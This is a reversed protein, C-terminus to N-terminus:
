GDHVTSGCLRGFSRSCMVLTHPARTSTSGGNVDLSTSCVIKSAGVDGRYVLATSVVAQQIKIWHSVLIRISMDVCVRAVEMTM